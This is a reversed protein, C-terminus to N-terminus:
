VSLAAASCLLSLVGVERKVGMRSAGMKVGQVGWLQRETWKREGLGDM